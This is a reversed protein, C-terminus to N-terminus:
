IRIPWASNARDLLPQKAKIGIGLSAFHAAILAESGNKRPYLM